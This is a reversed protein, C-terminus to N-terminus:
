VKHFINTVIVYVILKRLFIYLKYTNTVLAGNLVSSLQIFSVLCPLLGFLFNNVFDSVSYKVLAQKSKVSNPDGGRKDASTQNPGQKGDRM